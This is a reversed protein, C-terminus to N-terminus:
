RIHRSSEGRRPLAGLKRLAKLVWKAIYTTKKDEASTTEKTKKLILNKEMKNEGKSKDQLNMIEYTKLNRVLKDMTMAKLNRAETISNVKSEWQRPLINLVKCIQKTNWFEWGFNSNM